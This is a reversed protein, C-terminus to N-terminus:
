ARGRPAEKAAHTQDQAARAEQRRLLARFEPDLPGALEVARATARALRRIDLKIVPASM